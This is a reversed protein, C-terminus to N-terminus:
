SDLKVEEPIDDPNDFSEGLQFEAAVEKATIKRSGISVIWDDTGIDWAQLTIGRRKLSNRIGALLGETDKWDVLVIDYEFKPQKKTQKKSRAM